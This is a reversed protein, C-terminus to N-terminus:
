PLCVAPAINTTCFLSVVRSRWRSRTVTLPFRHPFAWVALINPKLCSDIGLFRCSVPRTPRRPLHLPALGHVSSGAAVSHNNPLPANQLGTFTHQSARGATNSTRISVYLVMFRTSLRSAPLGLTTNFTLDAPRRHLHPRLRLRHFCTLIGTSPTIQSPPVSFAISTLPQGLNLRTPQNELCFRLRCPQLRGRRLPVVPASAVFARFSGFAELILYM